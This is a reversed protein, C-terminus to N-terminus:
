RQQPLAHGSIAPEPDPGTPAVLIPRTGTRDVVGENV